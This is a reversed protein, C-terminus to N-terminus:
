RPRGSKAMRGAERRRHQADADAERQRWAAVVGAALGGLITGRILLGRQLSAPDLAAGVAILFVYLGLATFLAPLPSKRAWVFLAVLVVALLYYLGFALWVRRDFQLLREAATMRETGFDLVQDPPFRDLEAHARQAEFSASMGLLTGGLLCGLAIMALWISASVIKRGEVARVVHRREARARANRQRKHKRIARRRELDTGCHACTSDTVMVTARCDPCRESLVPAEPGPGAASEQPDQPLDMGMSMRYLIVPTWSRDHADDDLVEDFAFM